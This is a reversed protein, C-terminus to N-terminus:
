KQPLPYCTMSYYTNGATTVPKPDGTCVGTVDSNPNIALGYCHTGDTCTDNTLTVTPNNLQDVKRVAHVTCPTTCFTESSRLSQYIMAM